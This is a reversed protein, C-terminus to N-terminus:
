HVRAAFGSPMDLFHQGADPELADGFDHVGRDLLNLIFREDKPLGSAPIARADFGDLYARFSGRARAKCMLAAGAKTPPAKCFVDPM